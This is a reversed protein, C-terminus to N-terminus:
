LLTTLALCILVTLNYVKMYINTELHTKKDCHLGVIPRHGIVVPGVPEVDAVADVADELRRRADKSRDLHKLCLKTYYLLGELFHQHTFLRPWHTPAIHWSRSWLPKLLLNMISILDGSAWTYVVEVM